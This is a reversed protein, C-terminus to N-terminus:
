KRGAFLKWGGLLLRHLYFLPLLAVGLHSREFGYAKLMYARGPVVIERILRLRDSWRPLGQISWMLEDLWRRNPRLYVSSSERQQGRTM